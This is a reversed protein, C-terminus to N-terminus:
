NIISGNEQEQVIEAKYQVCQYHVDLYKQVGKCPDGGFFDDNSQVECM